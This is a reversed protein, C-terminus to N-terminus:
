RVKIEVDYDGWIAPQLHCLVFEQASNERVISAISDFLVQDDGIGESFTPTLCLTVLAGIIFLCKKTGPM